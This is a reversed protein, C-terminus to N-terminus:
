ARVSATTPTGAPVRRAILILYGIALLSVWLYAHGAIMQGTTWDLEPRSGPTWNTTPMIRYPALPVLFTVFWVAAAGLGLAAPLSARRSAVVLGIGIPICWVWHHVWAVPSAFLAITGTLALALVREGRIWWQRAAVLCAVAVVMSAAVWPLLVPADEGVLRSLFANISQNDSMAMYVSFRDDGFVTETWFTLSERPRVAFGVSVTAVYAAVANRLAHWQRTVVLLALFVVPTLKIGIALGTLVGRSRRAPSGALDAVVMLALLVGIQGMRFGQLIPALALSAGVVVAIRPWGSWRPSVCFRCLLVLALAALFTWLVQVALWPILALPVFLVAAFPPYAFNLETSAREPYLPAGNLMELGTRHYVQLDIFARGSYKMAALILVTFGAALLVVWIWRRLRGATMAREIQSSATSDRVADQLQVGM